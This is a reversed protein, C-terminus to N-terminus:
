HKSLIKKVSFHQLSYTSFFAYKFADNSIRDPKPGLLEERNRQEAKIIANNITNVDYGKQLFKEKLSMSENHFDRLDTCNRRLRLFQSVPVSRLWAPHHCSATNIFGNRDTEKFFTSTVITGNEVRIRLDLFHIETKSYDFQLVINRDNANLCAMFQKLSDVDGDWLLLIDDIYRRWLVLEPIPRSDIVDEEWKAMFLNAM